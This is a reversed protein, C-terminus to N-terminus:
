LIIFLLIEEFFIQPLTSRNIRFLDSELRRAIVDQDSGSLPSM